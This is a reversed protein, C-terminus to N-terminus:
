LIACLWLKQVCGPGEPHQSKGLYSPIDDWWPRMTAGLCLDYRLALLSSLLWNSVDEMGWRKEAGSGESAAEGKEGQWIRPGTPPLWRLHWSFICNQSKVGRMPNKVNVRKESKQLDSNQNLHVTWLNKSRWYFFYYYGCLPYLSFGSLILM